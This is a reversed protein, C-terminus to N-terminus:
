EVTQAGEFCDFCLFISSCPKDLGQDLCMLRSFKKRFSTIPDELLTEEDCADALKKIEKDEAEKILQILVNGHCEEISCWCGLTKGKLESLKSYLAPTSKIYSKYLQLALAQGHNQISFPNSWKSAAPGSVFHTLDRGIYVNNPNSLWEKLGLYGEKNIQLLHGDQLNIIEM